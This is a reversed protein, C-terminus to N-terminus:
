YGYLRVGVAHSGSSLLPPLLGDILHCDLKRNAESSYGDGVKRGRVKQSVKLLLKIINVSGGDAKGM